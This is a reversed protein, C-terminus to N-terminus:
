SRIFLMVSSNLEVKWTALRRSAKLAILEQAVLINKVCLRLSVFFFTDLKGDKKADKRRQTFYKASSGSCNRM